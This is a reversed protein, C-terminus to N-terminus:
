VVSKRDECIGNGKYHSCGFGFCCKGCRNCEGKVEYIESLENEKTKQRHIEEYFHIEIKEGQWKIKKGETTIVPNTENHKLRVSFNVENTWRCLKVQPLFIDPQKDDGIIVNIKDKPEKKYKDLEPNIIKDLRFANSVIKYKDIIEKNLKEIEIKAMSGFLAM